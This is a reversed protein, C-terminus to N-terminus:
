AEQRKPIIFKFVAGQEQGREAWIRGHHGEIIQKCIALGLGTGGDRAKTKSSQVFKEFITELEGDPIGPGTDHVFLGINDGDNEIGIEITGRPNTSKIANSILNRIVQAIKGKDIMLTDDFDVPHVSISLGKKDTLARFEEVVEMVLIILKWHDFQYTVMGSEMKSLDLIDNLLLLLNAGSTSIQDFYSRLKSRDGKESKVLGFSAYSIMGHLPTRLEHSINALFESKFRNAAEASEKEMKLRVASKKQTIDDVIGEMLLIEGNEGRTAHISASVEITTGDSRYCTIEFDKIAGQAALLRLVEEKQSPHTFLPKDARGTIEGLSEVSDYGFIKLCAQNASLIEGNPNMVFIGEVANNFISRYRQEAKSLEETMSEVAAYAKAFRLSLMLSELFIFIFLGFGALYIPYVLENGALIDYFVACFLIGSGALIWVAGERGNRAAQVATVLAYISLVVVMLQYYLVLHSYIRAPTFLTVTVFVATIWITFRIVRRSVEPFLTGLFLLFFPIGVYFTLYELTHFFEWPLDPFIQNLFRQGTLLTRLSTLFSVASFYLPSLDKSRILFLGFHYLGIILLSGALFLEFSLQNERRRKIRSEPGFEVLKWVGGKRHHFNAVQLVIDISNHQPFISGTQPLYQPTTKNRATGVTGNCLVLHGDVWIRYSTGMDLVKLAYPETFGTTIIKLRFTAYGMGTLPVGNIEYGNWKDPLRILGNKQGQSGDRFQEPMVLKQWYFEWEGDLRVIGNKNFDWGSLDLVGKKAIPPQNGSYCSSLILLLAIGILLRFRSM